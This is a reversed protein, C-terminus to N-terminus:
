GQDVGQTLSGDAASHEVDGLGLRQGGPRRQPIEAVDQDARM